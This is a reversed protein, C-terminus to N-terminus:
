IYYGVPQVKGNPLITGNLDKLLATEGGYQCTTLYLIFTHTSTRGDSNTRNLDIHPSLSGGIQDYHLFRMHPLAENQFKNKEYSIGYRFNKKQFEQSKVVKEICFQIYSRISTYTPNPNNHGELTNLSFKPSLISPPATSDCYYKRHSCPLHFLIDFNFFM